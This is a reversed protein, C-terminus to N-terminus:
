DISSQKNMLLNTDDTQLSKEQQTESTKDKTKKM